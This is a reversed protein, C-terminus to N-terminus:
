IQSIEPETKDQLYSIRGSARKVNECKKCKETGDPLNWHLVKFYAITVEV